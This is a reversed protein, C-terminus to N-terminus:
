DCHTIRPLYPPFIERLLASFSSSRQAILEGYIERLCGNLLGVYHVIPPMTRPKEDRSLLSVSCRIECCGCLAAFACV